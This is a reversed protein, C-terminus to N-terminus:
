ECPLVATLTRDVWDLRGGIAGVRDAVHGPVPGAYGTLSVVVTRDGDELRVCLDGRARAVADHVLIYAAREVAAPARHALQDDVIVAVEADDALADLASALGSADLAAPYVGHAFERIGAVLDRVGDAIAGLEAATADAGTREARSRALAVEYLAGLLEAQVVDHISREVARRTDDAAAVVRERSAQVEVLRAHLEAQLRENDVALRAASGIVDELEAPNRDRRTLSIAALREGARRLSVPWEEADPVPTGAADVFTHQETLWYAVRIGPDGLAHALVGELTGLAPADGLEAALQRLRRRRLITGVPQLGVAVVFGALAIVGARALLLPATREPGRAAAVVTIVAAAATLVLALDLAGARLRRRHLWVRAALVATLAAVAATALALVPVALRAAVPSPWPAVDQLSCDIWCDADHFPDRVAFVILSALAVLGGSGIVLSRSRGDRRAVPELPAVILLPAVIGGVSRAWAPAQQWSLVVGGTLCVLAAAAAWGDARWPLGRRGLVLLCGTGAAALLWAVVVSGVGVARDVSFPGAVTGGTVAWATVLALLVCGGAAISRVTSGATM